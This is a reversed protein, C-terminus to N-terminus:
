PQLAFPAQTKYKLLAADGPPLTLQTKGASVPLEHVTGSLKDLRQLRTPDLTPPAKSFDFSLVFTAAATSKTPFSGNAHNPNQLMVYREGQDDTFLGVLGDQWPVAGTAEIGVLYADGGAGPAWPKLGKPTLLKSVYRVDISTLQTVARGLQRLEQNIQGAWAFQPTKAAAFNGTQTFFAPTLQHAASIQYVFWTHGTYGFVLGAMADWRLDSEDLPEDGDPVYSQLYRWYPLKAKLGIDRIGALKEYTSSSQSYYDYSIVDAFGKAVLYDLQADWDGASYSFNVVVLAEADALHVKVAGAEIEKLAAMSMPEDGVQYGVRAPSPAYGGLVKGNNVNTGDAHLWSLFRHGPPALARWADMEGPLSDEWLHIDTCHFAGFYDSVAAQSPAGMSPTLASVFMRNKRVWALGKPLNAPAGTAGGTATSGATGSSGAAGGSTEGAGGGDATGGGTPAYGAGGGDAGTAASGGAGSGSAGAPRPERAGSDM